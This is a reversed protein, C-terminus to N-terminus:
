ALLTLEEFNYQPLHMTVRYPLKLYNNENNEVMEVSLVRLLHM